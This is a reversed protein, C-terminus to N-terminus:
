AGWWTKRTGNSARSRQGVAATGLHTPGIEVVLRTTAPEGPAIGGKDLERRTVFTRKAVAQGTELDLVQVDVPADLQGIRVLVEITTDSGAPLSFPASMLRTSTGEGDPMRIEAVATLTKKGGAVRIRLPTWTGVKYRNGFGIDARTVEVKPQALATTALMSLMTAGLLLTTPRPRM